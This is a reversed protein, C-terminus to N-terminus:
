LVTSPLMSRSLSTLEVNALSHLLMTKVLVKSSDAASKLCYCTTRIDVISRAAANVISRELVTVVIRRLLVVM